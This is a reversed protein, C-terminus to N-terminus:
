GDYSRHDHRMLGFFFKLGFPFSWKYHLWDVWISYIAKYGWVTMCEHHWDIAPEQLLVMRSLIRRIILHNVNCRQDSSVSGLHKPLADLFLKKRERVSWIWQRGTDLRDFVPWMSSSVFHLVETKAKDSKELESDVLTSGISCQNCQLLFLTIFKLKLRTVRRYNM